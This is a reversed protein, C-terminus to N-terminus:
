PLVTKKQLKKQGADLQPAFHSDTRDERRGNSSRVSLSVISTSTPLTRATSEGRSRQARQCHPYASSRARKCARKTAAKLRRATPPPQTAVSLLNQMLRSLKTPGAQASSTCPDSLLRVRASRLQPLVVCYFHSGINVVDVASFAPLAASFAPLAAPAM